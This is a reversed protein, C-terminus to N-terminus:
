MGDNLMIVDIPLVAHEVRNAHKTLFQFGIKVDDVTYASPNLVRNTTHLFQWQLHFVNNEGRQSGRLHHQRLLLFIETSQNNIDTTARGIENRIEVARALFDFSLGQVGDNM